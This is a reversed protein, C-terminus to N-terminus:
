SDDDSPAALVAAIIKKGADDITTPFVDDVCARLADKCGAREDSAPTWSIRTRSLLDTASEVGGSRV